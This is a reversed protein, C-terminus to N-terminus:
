GVCEEQVGFLGWERNDVFIGVIKEIVFCCMFSLLVGLFEDGFVECFVLVGDGDIKEM